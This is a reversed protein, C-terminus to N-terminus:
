LKNKHKKVLNNYDRTESQLNQLNVRYVQTKKGAGKTISNKFNKMMQTFQSNLKM